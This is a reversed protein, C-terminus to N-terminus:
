STSQQRAPGRFTQGKETQSHLYNDQRLLLLRVSANRSSPSQTLRARSVTVSVLHPHVGILRSLSGLLRDLRSTLRRDIGHTIRKITRNSLHLPERNQRITCRTDTITAMRFRRGQLLTHPSGLIRMGLSFKRIQNRFHLSGILAKHPMPVFIHLGHLTKRIIKHIVHVAILLLTRPKRTMSTLMLTHLTTRRRM